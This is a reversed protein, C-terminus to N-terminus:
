HPGGSRVIAKQSAGMSKGEPCEGIEETRRTIGQFLYRRLAQPIQPANIEAMSTQRNPSASAGFRTAGIMTRDEEVVEWLDLRFDIKTDSEDM